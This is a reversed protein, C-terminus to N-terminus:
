NVSKEIRYDEMIDEYDLLFSKVFYALAEHNKSIAALTMQLGMSGYLEDISDYLEQYQGSYFLGSFTDHIKQVMEMDKTDTECLSRVIPLAIAGSILNIRNYNIQGDPLIIDDTILTILKQNNDNM